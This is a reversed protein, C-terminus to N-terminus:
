PVEILVDKGQTKVVYTLVRLGPDKSCVGTKAKFDYAHWPHIIIVGAAEGPHLTRAGDPPSVSGYDKPSPLRSADARSRGTARGPSRSPTTGICSGTWRSAPFARRLQSLIPLSDEM